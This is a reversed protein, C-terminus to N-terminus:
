DNYIELQQCFLDETTTFLNFKEIKELIKRVNWLGLGHDSSSDKKSTYGKEFIKDIDIDINNFSNEIIILNRNARYDRVFRVNIIKEECQKAAEIANDLLIGLIRCIEYTYKEIEKFNMMIQIDMTINNQQALYYKNTIISYIASNNIVNPDLIEMNNVQKFEQMLSNSMRKIGEQNECEVYGNLAQVINGFDHRFGRINDYMISLTKNYTELTTIQSDQEQIKIIKVISKISIVYCVILSIIDLLLIIFPYHKEFLTIEVANFFLLFTELVSISIIAYRSRRQINDPINIGLKKKCIIIYILFKFAIVTLSLCGKYIYDYMGNSYTDVHNLMNCIIKSFPAESCITTISNITEGLICKEIKQNYILKFIIISTIINVIRYYPAPIVISSSLRIIAELVIILIDKKHSSEVTFVKKYTLVNVISLIISSLTSVLIWKLFVNGGILKQIEIIGTMYKEGIDKMFKGYKVM